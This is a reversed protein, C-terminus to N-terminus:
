TQFHGIRLVALRIQGRQFTFGTVIHWVANNERIKTAYKPQTCMGRMPTIVLEAHTHQTTETPDM